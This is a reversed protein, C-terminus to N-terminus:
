VKVRVFRIVVQDEHSNARLRQVVPVGLEKLDEETQGRIEAQEAKV